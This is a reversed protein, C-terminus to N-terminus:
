VRWPRKIIYDGNPDQVRIVEYNPSDRRAMSAAVCTQSWPHSYGSWAQERGRNDVPLRLPGPVSQPHQYFAYSAGLTNQGEPMRLRRHQQPVLSEDPRLTVPRLVQSNCHEHSSPWMSTRPDHMERKWRLVPETGSAPRIPPIGSNPDNNPTDHGTTPTTLQKTFHNGSNEADCYGSPVETAPRLDPSNTHDPRSTPELGPGERSCGELRLQPPPVIALVHPSMKQAKSNGHSGQWNAKNTNLRYPSCRSHLEKSEVARDLCVLSKVVASSSCHRTVIADLYKSQNPGKRSTKRSIEPEFELPPFVAPMTDAVLKYAVPHHALKKPLSDLICARPHLVMWENWDLEHEAFHDKRFHAVLDVMTNRGESEPRFTQFCVKCYLGALSAAAYGRFRIACLNKEFTALPLISGFKEHYGKSVHHVLAVAKVADPMPVLCLQRWTENASQSFFALRRSASPNQVIAVRAVSQAGSPSKQSHNVQMRLSNSRSRVKTVRRSLKAAAQSRTVPAHYTEADTTLAPDASCEPKPSFPPKAPWECGRSESQHKVKYHSIVGELCFRRSGKCSNCQFLKRDLKQTLPEVKSRFVWKMTDITLRESWSEHPLKVM